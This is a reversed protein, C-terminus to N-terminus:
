KLPRSAARTSVETPRTNSMAGSSAGELLQVQSASRALGLSHGYAALESRQKRSFRGTAGAHVDDRPRNAQGQQRMRLGIRLGARKRVLRGLSAALLQRTHTEVLAGFDDLPVGSRLHLALSAREQQGQSLSAFCQLWHPVVWLKM